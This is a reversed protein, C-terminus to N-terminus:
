RWGRGWFWGRRPRFDRRYRAADDRRRASMVARKRKRTAIRQPQRLKVVSRTGDPGTVVVNGQSWTWHAKREGKRYPEIAVVGNRWLDVIAVYETRKEPSGDENGAFYRLLGIGSFPKKLVEWALIEPEGEGYMEPNATLKPYRDHNAAYRNHGIRRVTWGEVPAGLAKSGPTFKPAAGTLRTLGTRSVSDLPDLTQARRYDAIALESQGLAEGIAARLNLAEINGPATSIARNIDPLGDKPAGSAVFMRARMVLANTNDPDLEIARTLNIRAQGRNKYHLNISGLLTLADAPQVDLEIAKKLDRIASKYKKAKAFARARSLHVLGVKATRAIAKTYDSIALGTRNAALYADGRARYANAFGPNLTVARTLDRVAAFPRNLALQARGRGLRAIPSNPLLGVARDFADFAEAFHGMAFYANGRNNHAAAYRPALRIARYFDALAIEPAGVAVLALGRNNFAEAFEPFLGIAANFDRIALRHRGLRWQAIGRDNLIYARQFDPLDKADLAADHAKVALADRGRVLAATGSRAKLQAQSNAYAQGSGASVSGLLLSALVFWRM